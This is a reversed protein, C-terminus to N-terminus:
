EPSRESTLEAEQVRVKAEAERLMQQLELDAQTVQAVQAEVQVPAYSGDIRAMEQTWKFHMESWKANEPFDRMKKLYFDLMEECRALHNKRAQEISPLEITDLAETKLKHVVSQSIDLDHAIARQTEGAVSRELIKIGLARRERKPLNKWGGYRLQAKDLNITDLLYEVDQPSLEDDQNSRM